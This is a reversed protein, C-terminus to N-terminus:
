KKGNPYFKAIDEISNIPFNVPQLGDIKVEINMDTLLNFIIESHEYEEKAQALFKSGLNEFGRNKLFQAIFLNKAQNQREINYQINLANELNENMLKM